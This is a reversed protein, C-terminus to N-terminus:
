APAAAPEAPAAPPPPDYYLIRQCSDCQIIADNRRVEQFVMPRLRVHCASCLGDRTAVSLAVGKRMRAVKDFLATIRAPLDQLLTEHAATTTTLTAETNALEAALERKEAAIEKQKAALAAEAAKLTATLGDTEVMRELIREEAAGLEEKASTIETQMAQYERNTKVASIQEQFKTLRGQFVAAEKELERRRQKNADLAATAADVVGIAEHLLDDADQLRRPHADIARLAEAIATSLRQLEILRELDPSM